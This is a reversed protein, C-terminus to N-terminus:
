ETSFSNAPHGCVFLQPWHRMTHTSMLFSHHGELVLIPVLVIWFKKHGVHITPNLVTEAFESAVAHQTTSIDRQLFPHWGSLGHWAKDSASKMSMLLTFHFTRCPKAIYNQLKTNGSFCKLVHDVWDSEDWGRGASLHLASTSACFTFIVTQSLFLKCFVASLFSVTVVLRCSLHTVWVSTSTM